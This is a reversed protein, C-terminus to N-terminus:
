DYNNTTQIEYLLQTESETDSYQILILNQNVTYTFLERPLGFSQVMNEIIYGITSKVPSSALGCSDVPTGNVTVGIMTRMTHTQQNNM